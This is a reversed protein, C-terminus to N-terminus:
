RVKLFADLYPTNAHNKGSHLKKSWRQIQDLDYNTLNVKRAAGFNGNNDESVYANGDEGIFINGKGPIEKWNGNIAKDGSIVKDMRFEHKDSDYVPKKSM